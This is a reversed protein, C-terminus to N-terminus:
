ACHEEIPFASQLGLLRLADQFADSPRAVSFRAGDAQWSAAASLLVQLCQSGAREVGSADILINSGRVASLVRALETAQTLDLSAPLTHSITANPEAAPAPDAKATRTRRTRLAFM